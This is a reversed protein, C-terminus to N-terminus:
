AQVAATRRGLVLDLAGGVPAAGAPLGPSRWCIHDDPRVLVAGGAEIGWAHALREPIEHVAVDPPTATRWADPRGTLLVFGPGTLDLTSVTRGDEDTLWAHPVRHGPRAVPQYVAVADSIDPPASGDPVVAAAPGDYTYGLVLGDSPRGQPRPGSVGSAALAALLSHRSEAVTAAGVPRREAEYSGLLATGAKGALVWALKWALNDADQIGCNMGFGGYPTMPHAADGALFVRDDRYHRALLAAATWEQVGTVTLELDPLGAARRVVEVCGDRTLGDVGQRAPDHILNFLWRRQNDVAMFTGTLSPNAITYILSLRDRVRPRLDADFLINLNRSLEADGDMTIGLRRRVFSGAGDAGILYAARIIRTTGDPGQIEATVGTPDQSLAVLEHGFWLEGCAQAEAEERLLPELIDQSCVTTFTPSLAARAPDPLNGRRIYEASTLADGFYFHLSETRPLGAKTVHDELGYRRLIEMTRISLARGKPFASTAPHREVLLSRVDLRSLAISACLGTPGGGAIIVPVDM